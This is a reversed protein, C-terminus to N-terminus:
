LKDPGFRNFDELSQIRGEFLSVTENIRTIDKIGSALDDKTNEATREM